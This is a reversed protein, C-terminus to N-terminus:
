SLKTAMIPQPRIAYPGEENNANQIFIIGHFHNPMIVFEDLIINKRINTTNIWEKQVIQGLESLNIEGDIIEGFLCQRDKVCITVFYGGSSSYDYGKLRTTKRKHIEPNYVMQIKWM